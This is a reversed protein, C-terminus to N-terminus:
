ATFQRPPTIVPPANKGCCRKYKQGSGCPCPANRAPHAERPEYVSDGPEYSRAGGSGSPRPVTPRPLTPDREDHKRIADTMCVIHYDAELEAMGDVVEQQRPTELRAPLNWDRKPFQPRHLVALAAKLRVAPPTDPNSLLDQLTRVAAHALDLMDDHLSETFERRAQEVAACFEKSTRQWHHITTRHIGADRAAASVSMGQALAAAVKSKLSAERAARPEYDTDRLQDPEDLSAAANSPIQHIAPTQIENMAQEPPSSPSSFHHVASAAM